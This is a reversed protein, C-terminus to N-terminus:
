PTAPGADLKAEIRELRVGIAKAEVLHADLKAETRIIRDAFSSGHNPKMERAVERVAKLAKSAYPALVVVAVLVALVPGPVYPAIDAIQDM